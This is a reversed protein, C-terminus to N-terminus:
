WYATLRAAFNSALLIGQNTSGLLYRLLRKRAQMHVTTPQRMHQSLLQVTFSIDPITITLYILRGLLRQYITPCPLVDGQKAFLKLNPDMPLQLPKANLMDFEKLLDLTYKRQSVFFGSHTREIEFGLFYRLEGLDKMHFSLSLMEKLTNLEVVFNGAM